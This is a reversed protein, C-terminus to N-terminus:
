KQFRVWIDTQIYEVLHGLTSPATPMPCASTVLIKRSMSSDPPLGAPFRCELLTGRCAGANRTIRSLNSLYGAPSWIATLAGDFCEARRPWVMSGLYPLPIM